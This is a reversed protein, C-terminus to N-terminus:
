KKPKRKYLKVVFSIVGTSNNTESTEIIKNQQDATCSLEVSNTAVNCSEGNVTEVGTFAKSLPACASLSYINSQGSSLYPVQKTTSALLSGNVKIYFQLTSKPAPGPGSNTVKGTVCVKAPETGVRVYETAGNTVYKTEFAQAQMTASCTLDPKNKPAVTISTTFTNNAANADSGLMKGEVNYAGGNLVFPAFVPAASAGPSLSPVTKTKEAAVSNNSARKLVVRVQVPPSAVPGTNKLDVQLAFNKDAVPDPNGASNAIGVVALDFALAKLPPAGGIGTRKASKADIRKPAAHTGLASFAAATCLTVIPAIRRGRVGNWTSAL